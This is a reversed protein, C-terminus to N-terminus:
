VYLWWGGRPGDEGEEEAEEEEAEAEQTDQVFAKLTDM